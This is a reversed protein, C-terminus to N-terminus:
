KKDVGVAGSEIVKIQQGLQYKIIAKVKGMKYGTKNTLHFAVTSNELPKLKVTQCSSKFDQLSNNSIDRIEISKIVFNADALNQNELSLFVSAFGINVNSKVTTGIPPNKEERAILSVTKVIIGQNSSMTTCKNTKNVTNKKVPKNVAMASQLFCAIAIFFVILIKSSVFIFKKQNIMQLIYIFDIRCPTSSKVILRGM